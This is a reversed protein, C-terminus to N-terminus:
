TDSNNLLYICVLSHFTYLMHCTSCICMCQVHVRTVHAIYQEHVRAVRDGM